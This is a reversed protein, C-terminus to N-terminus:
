EIILQYRCSCNVHANGATLAEYNIPLTSVKTKGDDKTVVKIERGLDVFNNEFPIPPLSALYQCYMCPHDSRTIWKKYAKGEYKNQKIFQLDAQYQSQTFARNTETRAIAKARNAIIDKYKKKIASIIEQQSAGELARKKALKIASEGTSEGSAEITKLTKDVIEDYTSKVTILLDDLITNIHSESAKSANAKIYNRVAQNMKFVATKGFESARRTLTSKGYLPVIIGYFAAIALGLESIYENKEQESIIDGQDDFSNKTVKNLVSNTVRTEINEVTNQLSGQQQQVLGKSEEDFENKILEFHSFLNKESSNIVVDNIDFGYRKLQIPLIM